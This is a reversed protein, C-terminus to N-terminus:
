SQFYQEVEPKKLVFFAWIGFPIGFLCCPGICPIMAVIAAAKSVQYKKMQVMNISGYLIYCAAVLLIVGWITRVIIKTSEPIPGDAFQDMETARGSAILFADFALGMLGWLISLSSVIILAIAPPKVQSSAPKEFTQKPPYSPPQYPSSM